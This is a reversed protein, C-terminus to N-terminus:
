SWTIQHQKWPSICLFTSFLQRHSIKNVEYLLLEWLAYHRSPGIELANNSKHWHLYAYCFTVTVNVTVYQTVRQQQVVREAVDIRMLTPLCLWGTMSPSTIANVLSFQDHLPKWPRRTLLSKPSVHNTHHTRLAPNRNGSPHTTILLCTFFDIAPSIFHRTQSCCGGM